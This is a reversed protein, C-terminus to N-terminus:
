KPEIGNRYEGPCNEPTIASLFVEDNTTFLLREPEFRPM